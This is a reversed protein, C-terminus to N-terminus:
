INYVINIFSILYFNKNNKNKNNQKSKGPLLHGVTDAVSGKKVKEIIAGYRGNSLLQGGVVKLGLITASSAPALSSEKLSKQLIMHGVLRTGDISPQWSVPHQVFCVFVFILDSSFTQNKLSLSMVIVEGM